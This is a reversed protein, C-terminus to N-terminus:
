FNFLLSLFVTSFVVSDEVVVLCYMLFYWLGYLIIYTEYRNMSIRKVESFDVMLVRLEDYITLVFKSLIMM